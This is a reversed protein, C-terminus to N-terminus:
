TSSMGIDTIGVKWKYYGSGHFVHKSLVLLMPVMFILYVDQLGLGM